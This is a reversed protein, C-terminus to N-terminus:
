IQTDAEDKKRQNEFFDEAIRQVESWDGAKPVLYYKGNSVVKLPGDTSNDLVVSKVNSSSIGKVITYLERIEQISLDTKLHQSLIGVVELIKDPRYFYGKKQFEDKIATIIQQQRLSRDFDSTTYRSRAYKLATEGDLIHTGAKIYFPNHDILNDAPFYQDYIDKPVEITVGGVSDVLKEFGVFDIRVWYHVTQGTVEEVAKKLMVPGGGTREKQQEALSHVANIKGQGKLPAPMDVLLDRPLSMMLLRKQDSSVNLSSLIITDALNGGKPHTAGGIGILLINIRGEKEGRLKEPSVIPLSLFTRGNSGSTVKALLVLVRAGYAAGALIIFLLIGFFLTRWPRPRKVRIVEPEAKKQTTEPKEM